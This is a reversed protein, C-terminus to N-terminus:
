ETNPVKLTDKISFNKEITDKIPPEVTTKDILLPRWMYRSTFVYVTQLMHSIYRSTFVCVTQLMHPVRVHSCQWIGATYTHMRNMSPSSPKNTSRNISLEEGMLAIFM